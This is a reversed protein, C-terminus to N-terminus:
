QKSSAKLSQLAEETKRTCFKLDSLLRELDAVDDADPAETVLALTDDVFDCISRPRLPGHASCADQFPHQAELNSCDFAIHGTSTMYLDLEDVAICPSTM